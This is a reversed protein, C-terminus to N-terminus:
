PAEEPVIQMELESPASERAVEYAAGSVIGQTALGFASAEGGPEDELSGCTVSQIGERVEEAGRHQFELPGSSHVRRVDAKM